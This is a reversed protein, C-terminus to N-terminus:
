ALPTSYGRAARISAAPERADRSFCGMGFYIVEHGEPWPGKLPTGLVVHLPAVELETDRGEIAEDATIMHTKDLNIGFM